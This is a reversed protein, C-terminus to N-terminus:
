KKKIKQGNKTDQVIYGHKLIQDRIFDSQDWDKNKRAKERKTLLVEIESNLELSDQKVFKFISDFVSTFNWAARVNLGDKNKRYFKKKTNKMWGLFIAIAGPTDLDNNLCEKFRDYAKPLENGTMKNAGM